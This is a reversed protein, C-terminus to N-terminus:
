IGGFLKNGGRERIAPAVIFCVM